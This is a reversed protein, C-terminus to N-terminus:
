RVFTRTIQEDYTNASIIITDPIIGSLPISAYTVSSYYEPQGGQDHYIQFCAKTESSALTDIVLGISQRAEENDTAGTLLRLRLNLYKRNKSLWMSEVYLPDTKMGGQISDRPVLVGVRSLSIAEAVGEEVKNYYLIARYTTDAKEIWKATTPAKMTLMEGQDTEVHDVTKDSGITAEVLEATLLSYEGEGKEYSDITCATLFSFGALAAFLCIKKM